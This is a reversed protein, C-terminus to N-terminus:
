QSAGDQRGWRGFGPPGPLVPQPFAGLRQWRSPRDM